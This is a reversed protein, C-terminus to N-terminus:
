IRVFTITKQISLLNTTVEDFLSANMHSNDLLRDMRIKVLHNHANEKVDIVGIDREKADVVIALRNHFKFVFVEIFVHNEAAFMM